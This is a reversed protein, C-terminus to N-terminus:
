ITNLLHREKSRVIKTIKKYLKTKFHLIKFLKLNNLTIKSNSYLSM